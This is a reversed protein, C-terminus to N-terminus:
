QSPHSAATARATAALMAVAKEFADLAYRPPQYAPGAPRPAHVDYRLLADVLQGPNLFFTAGPEFFERFVPRDLLFCPLGSLLATAIPRGFGEQTAISALVDLRAIFDGLTHADSEVLDVNVEPFARRLGGFYATGHGYVCFRIATPAGARRLEAFLADYNKKPSDTGVLGVVLPAGAERPRDIPLRAAAPFRNPVFVTRAMSVGLSIVFPLTESVNIYGVRCRSSALSLRLLWSKLKARAGIKFPYGDHVVIWQNSLLPIPHPTPTFLVDRRLCARVSEAVLGPATCLRVDLEPLAERTPALLADRVLVRRVLGRNARLYDLGYYYLGNTNKIHFLNGVIM